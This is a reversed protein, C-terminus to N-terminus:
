AVRRAIFIFYIKLFSATGPQRQGTKVIFISNANSSKKIKTLSGRLKWENMLVRKQCYCVAFDTWDNVRSAIVLYFIMKVRKRGFWLSPYYNSLRHTNTPKVMAGFSSFWNLLILHWYIRLVLDPSIPYM